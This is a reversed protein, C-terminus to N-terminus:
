IEDIPLSCIWDWTHKIGQINDVIPAYGLTKRAKENTFLERQGKEGPRYDKKITEVKSGTILYCMKLISEVTEEHGFSVQFKEGNVVERPADIVLMWADLIDSVYTLDRTQDGGELVVPLGKRMNRLWKYVFIDRRMGAGLCAGNSMVTVPVGYAKEYAWCAMEGAAKSFSYPNHPTLPHKEDIPLYMPRGFENGSGAYIFKEVWPCLRVIELASIIEDVNNRVTWRPSTHGMPVDAQAALYVVTKVDEFDSVTLDVSAKWRYDLLPSDIVKSLNSAMLPSCIDVVRVEREQEILRCTLGSGAFGAGGIILTKM